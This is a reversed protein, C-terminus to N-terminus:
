YNKYLVIEGNNTNDKIWTLINNKILTFEKRSNFFFKIELGHLYQNAAKTLALSCDICPAYKVIIRLKYFYGLIQNYILNFIQFYIKKRKM